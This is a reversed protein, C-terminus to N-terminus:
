IKENKESWELKIRNNTFQKKFIDPLEHLFIKDGIQEYILKKQPQNNEDNWFLAIQGIYRKVSGKVVEKKPMICVQIYDHITSLLHHDNDNQSLQILRQPLLLANKIHVSACVRASSSLVLFLDDVAKDRVEQFCVYDASDRLISATTSSYDMVSNVVYQTINRKPYLELLRMEDIDSILVINADEQCMALSTKMLQTKGTGVEGGFIISMRSKMCANIFDFVIPECYKTKKAKEKDIVLKLPNKRIRLTYGSTSYSKHTAHIRLGDITGDLIPNEFNFQDNIKKSNVLRMLLQELYGEELTEVLKTGKDVDNVYVTSGNSDIDTIQEDIVYKQLIGFDFDM